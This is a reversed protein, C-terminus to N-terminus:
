DCELPSWLDLIPTVFQSENPPFVLTCQNSHTPFTLRLLTPLTLTFIILLLSYPPVLPTKYLKLLERFSCSIAKIESGKIWCWNMPRQEQSAEIHNGVATGAVKVEGCHHGAVSILFVFREKGLSNKDPQKQEGSDCFM